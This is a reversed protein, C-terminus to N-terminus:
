SASLIPISVNANNFDISKAHKNDTEVDVIFNGNNYFPDGTATHYAAGLQDTKKLDAGPFQEEHKSANIHRESTHRAGVLLRGPLTATAPADQSENNKCHGRKFHFRNAVCIM